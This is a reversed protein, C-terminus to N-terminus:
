ERAFIIAPIMGETESIIERHRYYLLHIFAMALHGPTFKAEPCRKKLYVMVFYFTDNFSFM